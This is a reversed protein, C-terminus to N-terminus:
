NTKHVQERIMYVMDTISDNLEDIVKKNDKLWGKDITREYSKVTNILLNFKKKAIGKHVGKLNFMKERFSKFKALFLLLNIQDEELKNM